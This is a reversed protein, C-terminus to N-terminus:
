SAALHSKRSKEKEPNYQYEQFPVPRFCIKGPALVCTPMFNCVECNLTSLFRDDDISAGLVTSTM